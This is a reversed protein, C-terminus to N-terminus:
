SKPGHERHRERGGANGAVHMSRLIHRAWGLASSIESGGAGRAQSEDGREAEHEPTGSAALALSDAHTLNKL